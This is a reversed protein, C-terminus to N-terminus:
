AQEAPLSPVSGPLPPLRDLSELGFYQLFQVTTGYQYPRGPQELRGVPEVLERAILTRLVGDCGVGRLAEIEVRTLPQRYAIVALTELAAQSLRASLDLGLFREIYSAAQPATTLHVRDAKRLLRLGRNGEVYGDALQSLAAEILEEAVGLIQALRGVPTPAPAVFLLSELLIPLEAEAPTEAPPAPPQDTVAGPPALEEPAQPLETELAAL